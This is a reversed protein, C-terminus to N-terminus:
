KIEGGFYRYTQGARIRDIAGRHVGLEDAWERASKVRWPTTRIRMVEDETFVRHHECQWTTGSQIQRVNPASIGFRAAITDTTEIGKLARIQTAQERTLRFRPKRGEHEYREFQNQSPTRWDLHNPNVCGSTGKGCSHAAQHQSSPAPGRKYECMLRHVAIKNGKGIRVYGGGARSFPWILCNDEHPFDFNARVWRTSKSERVTLFKAMESM